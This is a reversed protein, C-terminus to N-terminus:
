SKLTVGALLQAKFDLIFAVIAASTTTHLLDVNWKPETTRKRCGHDKKIPFEKLSTIFHFTIALAVSSFVPLWTM